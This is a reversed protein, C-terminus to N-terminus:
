MPRIGDLNINCRCQTFSVSVQYCSGPSVRMAGEGAGFIDICDNSIDIMIKIDFNILGAFGVM